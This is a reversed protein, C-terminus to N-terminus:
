NTRIFHLFYQKIKESFASKKDMTREPHWQILLFCKGDPNEKKEMAEIIGDPSKAVVKLGKAVQDIAQHHGSSIIGNEEQVIRYLNSKKNLAVSHIGDNGNLSKSHIMQSLHPLDPILTGGYFVNVFQMGRCIALLPKQTEEVHEMIKWEFEDRQRDSTETSDYNYVSSGSYLEPSVDSGGILVIGDCKEVEKLNNYKYGLRIIEFEPEKLWDEYNSYKSGECIGVKKM